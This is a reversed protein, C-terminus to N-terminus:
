FFNLSWLPPIALYLISVWRNTSIKISSLFIIICQFKICEISPKLKLKFTGDYRELFRSVQSSCGEGPGVRIPLPLLM